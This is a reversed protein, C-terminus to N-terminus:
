KAESLLTDISSKLTAYSQAGVLPIKGGSPTIIVVFPTGSVGANIGDLYQKEIKDKFQGSEVCDTFSSVNLGIQNAIIPLQKQDLGEPTDGTVSPTIDYLRNTYAWFKDNGGLKAACELAQAEHGSNPHLIHGQGDPKDLPFHRYVWAVKGGAGYEDLLKVMTPHFVKCFPCSTDSYEVIKIPANPNGLIHDTATVPLMNVAPQGLNAAAAQTNQQAPPKQTWIIAIAIIACGIIIASPLTLLPNSKTEM